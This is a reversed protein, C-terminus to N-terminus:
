RPTNWADFVESPTLKEDPKAPDSPLAAAPRKSAKPEAALRRRPRPDVRSAKPAEARAPPAPLAEEDQEKRPAARERVPAETPAPSTSPVNSGTEPALRLAPQGPTSAEGGEVPQAAASPVSSQAQVPDTSLTDDSTGSPMLLWTGGSTAIAAAVVVLVRRSRSGNSPTASPLPAATTALGSSVVPLSTSSLESSRAIATRGTEPRAGTEDARAEFSASPGAESSVLPRSDCGALARDLADIAAGASEFRREPQRDICRLLWADFAEPLRNPLGSERLRQRPPEMPLSVIEAFLSQVIAAPKNASKWYSRGTLLVHAILGLAWVDTCPSVPDAVVQEYAM